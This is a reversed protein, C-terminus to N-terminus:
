QSATHGNYTGSSSAGAYPYAKIGKIKLIADFMVANVV